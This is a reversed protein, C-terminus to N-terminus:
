LTVTTIISVGAYYNPMTSLYNDFKEKWKATPKMKHIKVLEDVLSLWHKFLTLEICGGGGRVGGCGNWVTEM